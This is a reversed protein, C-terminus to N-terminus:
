VILYLGSLFILMLCLIQLAIRARARLALNPNGAVALVTIATTAISAAIRKRLDGDQSLDFRDENSLM